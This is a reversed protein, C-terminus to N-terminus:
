KLTKIKKRLGAVFNDKGEVILTLYDPNTETVVRMDGKQYEITETDNFRSSSTQSLQHTEIYLLVGKKAKDIDQAFTKKANLLAKSKLVTKDKISGTVEDTFSKLGELTVQTMQKNESKLAVMKDNDESYYKVIKVKNMEMSESESMSLESMKAKIIKLTENNVPSITVTLFTKVKFGDAQKVRGVDSDSAKPSCGTVIVILLLSVVLSINKLM